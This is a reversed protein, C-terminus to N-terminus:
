REEKKFLGGFRPKAAPTTVPPPPDGAHLMRSLEKRNEAARLAVEELIRGSRVLEALSDDMRIMGWARGRQQLSAVQFLKNDRILAALPLVGTLLEAAAVVGEGDATPLLRQAMVFKLASALSTRVQQQDDPPFMDILRDLTKAASPTSMTAMVLHGTEAATLAIEVTERDRLEGIVIVDPDERLSAKLAAAFSRTHTGVERQSILARKRPHIIEVPDEITLIHHARASNILDVLAALTTTKGHGNPGAVVILGQHYTTIRALERPLGLQELTSPADVILRFSGKWGLRARSVNARLRGAGEIELATDVYGRSALQDRQGADLVSTLMREVTDASLDDGLSTVIGLIRAMAPREAALHLDTAKRQRAARVIAVFGADPIGRAAGTGGLPAATAPEGVIAPAPPPSPTPPSPMPPSPIAQAPTAQAPTPVRKGTATGRTKAKTRLARSLRIVTDPGRVSVDAAISRECLRLSPANGGGAEVLGALPTGAILATLQAATVEARSAPRYEGGAKVTVPRSTALVVETVDERDLFEVLKALQSV